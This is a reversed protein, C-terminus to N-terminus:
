RDGAALQGRLEDMGERLMSRVREPTLAYLAALDTVSKGRYFVDEVLTRPLPSEMDSRVSVPASANQAQRVSIARDRTLRVLWAVESGSAPDYVADGASIALFTEELVAAAASEDGTIRLAVAFLRPAHRDYMTGIANRDRPQPM